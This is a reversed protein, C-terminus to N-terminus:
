KGQSMAKEEVQSELETPAKKSTFYHRVGVGLPLGVTFAVVSYSAGTLWALLPLPIFIIGIAITASRVIPLLFLAALSLPLAPMPIMGIFVGIGSAAGRGGRFGLFMSWNHGAVAAVGAVMAAGTGGMVVKAALVAVVGKGIDAAGVAIGTRPGLTRYVNAAGPNKDGVERIDKGKLFRGALYASPISGILYAMIIVSIWDVAVWTL